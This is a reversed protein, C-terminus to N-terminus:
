HILRYQAGQAIHHVPTGAFTARLHAALSVIGPEEATCHNVVIVPLGIDTAYGGWCCWHFGDDTCIVIDANFRRVFDYHYVPTIAGTGIVITTVPKDPDGLFLVAEQGLCKVREAVRRAVDGATSGTVDYARYYGRSKPLPNSFGLAAGWSDPIGIGPVQDWVDHCRLVTMGTEALWREKALVGEAHLGEDTPVDPLHYYLPEHCVFLDCGLEYARKLAWTHAKWGVAIATVARAPDGATFTDVTEEWHVWGGDLGNLHNAVDQATM